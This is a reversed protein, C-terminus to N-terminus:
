TNAKVKGGRRLCESVFSLQSLGTLGLVKASNEHQSLGARTEVTIKFKASASVFFRNQRQGHGACCGM